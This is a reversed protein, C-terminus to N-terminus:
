KNVVFQVLPAQEFVLSTQYESTSKVKGKEHLVNM